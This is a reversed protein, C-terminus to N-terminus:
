KLMVETDQASKIVFQVVQETMHLNNAGKQYHAQYEGPQIQLHKSAPDNLNLTHFSMFKDGLRQYLMVSSVKGDSSVFKAFGPQPIQIVTEDFDIDVNRVDKPFTNIEIHYNGPEYELLDTCKQKQVRGNPTNREIVIAEFEKVPRKSSNEYAFSISANRVTVIVKKKKGPEIIVNHVVLNSRASLTLDYTGVPLNTMPDPQGNADVTRYFRKVMKHAVPDMMMIQPTTTFFKGKGNTFYVELSSEPADVSETSSEVTKEGTEPQKAAIAADQKFVPMPPLKRQKFEHDEIIFIVNFQKLPAPKIASAVEKTREVPTEEVFAPIGPEQGLAIAPKAVPPKITILIPGGFSILSIKEAPPAEITIPALALKPLAVLKVDTQPHSNTGLTLAAPTLSQIKEKTAVPASAAVTQIQSLESSTIKLVPRFAEVIAGVAKAMDERKTVQLYDGMCAYTSKLAPVDELNLIYPKFYIKNNVLTKMVDCINGNCSEGGDTILVISYVNHTPDVLDYEAAQKLSYAIATVGLPHIDALRLSIQERNEKSFQVELKSDYCNNEEVTGQHGFVRLGFEVQNNVKYVSDILKLILEDAAKYKENGGAWPQIMSSSRDLLILVRSTIVEGKIQSQLPLEGKIQAFSCFALLVGSFFLLIRKVLM